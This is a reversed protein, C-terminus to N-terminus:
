PYDNAHYHSPIIKINSNHLYLQHLKSINHQYQQWDYTILAAIKLPLQKTQLAQITWCADAVLFYAAPNIKLYLGFQGRSHGVLPIAILSQDNFIDYGYTFPALDASLNIKAHNEIFIARSAFDAPILEPLFAQMVATYGRLGQLATYEAQSCIYQAAPFDKLGCIHDAHFHSIFIYRIKTAAIGLAALQQLITAQPTLHVPTVYRYWRYPWAKTAQFFRETYGTDFLMYGLQEHWILACLSPFVALKFWKGTGTAIKEPHTCYGTNFLKIATIAM